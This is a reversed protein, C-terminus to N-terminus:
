RGARPAAPLDHSRPEESRCSAKDGSGTPGAREAPPPDGPSSPSEPRSPAGRPNERAREGRDAAPARLAGTTTRPAAEGSAEPRSPEDSHDRQRRTGAHSRDDAPGHPKSLNTASNIHAIHSFAQPFNGIMRRREPCYEEALLGVDNRLAILAEFLTKAEALRGVLVLNDVLWFSCALFAGESGPLGDTARSPRYRRVLGDKMLERQVAEITGLLRPDSAELFGVLPMMLLGADLEDGGYFQVFSNRRRDFANECVDRHIRARLQRWEDLPGTVGYTEVAKIARDVAVWAMVKSHTFHRRPGRVEWMGEDPEQWIAALGELMKKQIRWADDDHPLGRRAALDLTDMLEGFVDLQLQTSAANGIRVPRSGEYGSLWPLEIESLRREGRIGYMINVQMPTGAVARLLWRRWREAEDRYGAALLSYLTFTSDRLWCYRYDWNRTGGLAEPLSTTPAAVIGGTPEYTLAKLTLLSRDVAAKDCGHYESRDSWEKWSYITKRVAHYPNELPLPQPAESSHWAMVFPLKAGAKVTFRAITHLNEGHMPVPASVCLADPGAVAHLATGDRKARRVWPIISGYDFRIVLVMEMEVEGELGELHRVLTPTAHGVLMCDTLLCSGGAAEFRTQLVVTGDVYQRRAQFRERPSIKWYGNEGDGLLAAFCAASDFRPLCLWDISGDRSVLAASHCNSIMAYDELPLSM